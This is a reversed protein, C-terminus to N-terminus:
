VSKLDLIKDGIAVGVRPYEERVSFIGFPLNQIPFDSNEPVEVWSKLSPNNAEINLM